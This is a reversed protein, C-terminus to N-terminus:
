VLLHIRKGQALSCWLELWRTHVERHLDEIKYNKLTLTFYLEIIIVQNRLLLLNTTHFLAMPIFLSLFLGHM